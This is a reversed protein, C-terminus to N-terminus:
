SAGDPKRQGLQHQTDLSDLEELTEIASESGPLPLDGPDGTARASM